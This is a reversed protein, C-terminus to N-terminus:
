FTVGAITHEKADCHGITQTRYETVVSTTECSQGEKGGKGKRAVTATCDCSAPVTIPSPMFVTSTVLGVTVTVTKEASERISISNTGSQILSSQDNSALVSTLTSTESSYSTSALVSTLTSTPTWRGTSGPTPTFSVNSWSVGSSPSPWIISSGGSGYGSSLIGSSWAPSSTTAYPGTTSSLQFQSSTTTKTSSRTSSSTTSRSNSSTTRSSTTRSSTTYGTTSYSTSTTSRTSTHTTSHSTSHSTSRTTSTTSHTTKTSHTTTSCSTSTSSTSTSTQYCSLPLTTPDPVCLGEDQSASSDWDVVQDGCNDYQAMYIAEDDLDFATYAGRLFSQGLIVEDDMASQAAGLYCVGNVELIFDRLAVRITLANFGFDVSADRARLYCPVEYVGDTLNYVVTPFFDNLAELYEWPLYSIITTYDFFAHRSPLFTELLECNNLDSYGISTLTVYYRSDAGPAPRSRLRQLEGSYKRTNIGSFLLEGIGIDKYTSDDLFDAYPNASGLGISFQRSAILGSDKLIDLITDDQSDCGFGLGLRGATQAFSSDAVGVQIYGLDAGAFQVEDDVYCGSASGYLTSFEWPETCDQYGSTTSANPNYYGNDNCADYSLAAYCDPNVWLNNTFLDIAPYVLQPPSGIALEVTYPSLYHKQTANAKLPHSGYGPDDRNELTSSGRNRIPLRLSHAGNGATKSAIGVAVSALLLVFIM